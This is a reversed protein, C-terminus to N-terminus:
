VAERVVLGLGDPPRRVRQAEARIGAAAPASPGHGDGALVAAAVHRADADRALDRRLEPLGGGAHEGDVPQLIEAERVVVESGEALLGLLPRCELRKVRIGGALRLGDAAIDAVAADRREEAALAVRLRIVHPPGIARLRDLVGVVVDVAARRTVQTLDRLADVGPLLPERVDVR